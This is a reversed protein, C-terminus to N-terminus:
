FLVSYRFEFAFDASKTLIGFSKRCFMLDHANSFLGVESIGLGNADNQELTATFRVTADATYDVTVLKFLPDPIPNYLYEDDLTPPVPVTPNLPDHGGTGWKMKTIFLESPAAITALPFEPSPHLTNFLAITPNQMIHNVDEWQAAGSLLRSMTRRALSVVLNEGLDIVEALNAPDVPGRYKNVTIFGRAKTVEDSHNLIPHCRLGDGSKRVADQFKM